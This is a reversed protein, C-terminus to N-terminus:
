AAQTARTKEEALKNTPTYLLENVMPTTTKLAEADTIVGNHEEGTVIAWVTVIEYTENEKDYNSIVGTLTYKLLVVSLM